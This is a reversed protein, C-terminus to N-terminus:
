CETLRLALVTRQNWTNWGGFGGNPQVGVWRSGSRQAGPGSSGSGPIHPKPRACGRPRLRASGPRILPRRRDPSGPARSVVSGTSPKPLFWPSSMLTTSSIFIFRRMASCIPGRDVM